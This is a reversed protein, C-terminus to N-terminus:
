ITKGLATASAPVVPAVTSYPRLPRNVRTHIVRMAADRQAKTPWPGYLSREGTLVGFRNPRVMKVRAKKWAPQKKVVARAKALGAKGRWPGLLRESKKAARDEFWYLHPVPPTARLEKPVAIVCGTIDRVRRAVQDGSNGECTHWTSGGASAVLLGTHVGPVIFAAGPRPTGTLGTARARTAFVDTSASCIATAIKAQTWVWQVYASCWPWGTGGLETVAQYQKIRPGTNSGSGPPQEQVGVEALAIKVVEDGKTV